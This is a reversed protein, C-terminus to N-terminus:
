PCPHSRDSLAGIRRRRSAIIRLLPEAAKASLGNQTKALITSRPSASTITAICVNTGGEGERMTEIWRGVPAGESIPTWGDDAATVPNIMKFPEPAHIM